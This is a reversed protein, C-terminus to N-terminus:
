PVLDKAAAALEALRAEGVGSLFGAFDSHAMVNREVYERVGDSGRAKVLDVYRDFHELDPEYLGYVESPYAGYPAEVVADVVFHPLMTDSPSAAIEDHSVLRETTVIVRRAARAMDVDMHRYGDVQANGFKDARHVHLITVDPILAPVALLTEQTYPCQVTATNRQKALDSGLMSLMPLFPVGMGGAKYGLGIGLHSWEDYAALGNEVYHRVTASLGWHLGIGVWSTVIRDAAETAFFLDAEYCTLPRSLTLGRRRQRLLEFLLVTPTRSYLTGGVAVHDGDKVLAAAEAASVVKDVVPRGHEELERRAEIFPATM